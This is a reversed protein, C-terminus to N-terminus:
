PRSVAAIWGRTYVEIKDRDPLREWREGLWAALQEERVITAGQLYRRDGPTLITRADSQGDAYGRNYYLLDTASEIKTPWSEM